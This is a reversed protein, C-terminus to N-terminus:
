RQWTPPRLTYAVWDRRTFCFDDVNPRNSSKRCKVAVVQMLRGPGLISAGDHSDALERSITEEDQLADMAALTACGGHGAIFALMPRVSTDLMLIGADEVPAFDGEQFRRLAERRGVRPFWHRQDADGVRVAPDVRVGAGAGQQLILPKKPLDAGLKKLAFPWEFWAPSGSVYDNCTSNALIAQVMPVALPNVVPSAVVVIMGVDRRARYEETKARAEEALMEILLCDEAAHFELRQRKHLFEVLRNKAETDRHSVYHQTMEPTEILKGGLVTLLTDGPQFLDWPHSRLDDGILDKVSLNLQRMCYLLLDVAATDVREVSHSHKPFYNAPNTARRYEGRIECADLYDDVKSYGLRRSDRLVRERLIELLRVIGPEAMGLLLQRFTMM